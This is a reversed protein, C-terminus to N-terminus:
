AVVFSKCIVPENSTSPTILPSPAPKYLIGALPTVPNSNNLIVDPLTLADKSSPSKLILVLTNMSPVIVAVSYLTVITDDDIKYERNITSDNMNRILKQDNKNKDQFGSTILPNNQKVLNNYQKLLNM